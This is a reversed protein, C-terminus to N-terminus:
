SPAPASGPRRRRAEVTPPRVLRGPCSAEDVRAYWTLRGARAWGEAAGHPSRDSQGSLAVDPWTGAGSRIPAEFAIGTLAYTVPNQIKQGSPLLHDGGRSTAISTPSAMRAPACALAWRTELLEACRDIRPPDGLCQRRGVGRRHPTALQGGLMHHPEDDAHAQKTIAADDLDYMM